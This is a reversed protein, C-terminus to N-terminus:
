PTAPKQQFPDAPTTSKIKSPDRPTTPKSISPDDPVAPHLVSPDMTAAPKIKEPDTPVAPHSVEPDTPVAPHIKDPDDPTTPIGRSPTKFPKVEKEIVDKTIELTEATSGGSRSFAEVTITDGEKVKLPVEVQFNNPDVQQRYYNVVPAENNKTIEIKAIYHRMGNPSVHHVDILLKQGKNDYQLDLSSPPHAFAPPPMFIVVSLNLFFVFIFKFGSNM